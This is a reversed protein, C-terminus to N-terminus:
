SASPEKAVPHDLVALDGQPIGATSMMVAVLTLSAPARGSRDSTEVNRRSTRRGSGRVRSRRRAAPHRGMRRCCPSELLLKVMPCWADRVSLESHGSLIFRTADGDPAGNRFTIEIDEGTGPDTFYVTADSQLSDM